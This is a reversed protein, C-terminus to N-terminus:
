QNKVIHRLTEGSILKKLNKEIQDKNDSHTIKRVNKGILEEREYGLAMCFAPNIDIIDGNSNELMIGSPSLQFLTHYYEENHKSEGIDRGTM